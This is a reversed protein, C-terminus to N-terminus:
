RWDPQGPARYTDAVQPRTPLDLTEGTALRDVPWRTYERRLTGESTM